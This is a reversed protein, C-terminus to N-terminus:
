GWVGNFFQMADEVSEYVVHAYIRTQEIKSHGLLEQLTAIKEGNSILFNTAFTHRACHFSIRKDIGVKKMIDKLFLNTKQDSIVHFVPAGTRANADRILERAGQTIPIKVTKGTENKTKIMQVVITNGVINARSFVKIDSYRLGTLCSFLFYQLVNQLHGPLTNAKYLAICKQLEVPSLYERVAINPQLRVPEFPNGSVLGEKRAIYFYKKLPKLTGLTSSAKNKCTVRCWRILEMVTTETIDRLQLEPSFTKIKRLASLHRKYTGIAYDAKNENLKKLAYDFFLFNMTYNEYERRLLEPTLTSFRLRYRVFIENLRAKCNNIILNKDKSEKSTGKIFGRSLDINEFRTSVGTKFRVPRGDVVTSVYVSYTNDAKKQRPNIYLTIRNM